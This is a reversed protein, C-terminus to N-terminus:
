RHGNQEVFAIMKHTLAERPGNYIQTRARPIIDCGHGLGTRAGANLRHAKPKALLSVAKRRREM